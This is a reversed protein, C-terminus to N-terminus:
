LRGIATLLTRLSGRLACSMQGHGNDPRVLKVLSIQTRDDVRKRNTWVELSLGVLSTIHFVQHGEM